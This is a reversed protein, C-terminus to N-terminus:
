RSVLIKNLFKRRKFQWHKSKKKEIKPPKKFFGAGPRSNPGFGPPAIRRLRPKSFSIEDLFLLPRIYIGALIIVKMPKFWGSLLRFERVLNKYNM